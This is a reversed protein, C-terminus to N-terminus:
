RTGSRSPATSQMMDRLHEYLSLYRAFLDDYIQGTNKQPYFPRDLEVRGKLATDFGAYMGVAVGAMACCGLGTAERSKVACIPHGTIDAKIQMWLANSSAGGVARLVADASVSPIIELNHRLAFAAGEMVSRILHGRTKTYDLGFFVGCADPNWIPSREGAMYPLFLLGDSGAPVRAAEEMARDFRAQPDSADAPEHLITSLWRILNGGGVTGGQLLYQGPVIHRSLILNRVPACASSCVSMGGASGSQEHVTGSLIVGAGAAGCAADLGGAAVPTGPCLGCQKAASSSVTGAISASKVVPPILSLDFALKEAMTGNMTGKEMDFFPWGYAQCDDQTFEGTLRYVLYGNSTLIHRVSPFIEKSNDQLWLVKPLTYYPQVPNGSTHFCSEEGVTRRIDRCQKEARTDYWLPAPFLPVGEASLCVPTWSVGDVGVAAINEASVNAQKLLSPLVSCLTNWWVEPNQEAWGRRPTEPTYSGTVTHYEGSECNLLLAKLGSTGIDISLLHTKM